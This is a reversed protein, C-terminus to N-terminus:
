EIPTTPEMGPDISEDIIVDVDEEAEKPEDRPTSPLNPEDKILDTISPPM